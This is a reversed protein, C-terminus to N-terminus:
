RRDCITDFSFGTAPELAVVKAKLASPSCNPLIQVSGKTGAVNPITGAAIVAMGAAPTTANTGAVFAGTEDLFSVFMGCSSNTTNQIIVVSIQTGSNNYRSCYMTSESFLISYKAGATSGAGGKVRVRYSTSADSSWRILKFATGAGATSTQLLTTGTADWLTLFDANDIPTDGSIQSVLVQHTRFSTTGIIFWDEDAVGGVAELDHEQWQSRQLENRTSVATNDKIAGSDWSDAAAAVLPSGALIAALLANFAHRQFKTM